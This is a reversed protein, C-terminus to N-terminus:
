IINKIKELINNIDFSGIANSQNENNFIDYIDESIISSNDIIKNATIHIIKSYEDFLIEIHEIIIKNINKLILEMSDNMKNDKDNYDVYNNEVILMGNMILRKLIKRAKSYDDEAGCTIDNIFKKESIRGGYLIMVEILLQKITTKVLLDDDDQPFLTYGLSKSNISICIKTPIISDKILFALIAHGTEHYAIIKRNLENIKRDREMGLICKSIEKDIDDTTINININNYLQNTEEQIIEEQNTEEQIIEEQNTEEQIIEEQIIKEQIIEKKNDILKLKNDILKLKDNNLEIFINIKNIKILNIIKKIDSGTLGYSLKSIKNINIQEENYLKGLYMKFLEIREEFTPYNIYIIQDVRGARILGKDIYDIDMNSAFIVIVGSETKLSDMEALFKCITSNYDTSASSSEVYSRKKLISDAEDVFILCPKNERAKKFLKGVTSSGSGVFMKNFDSGSIFIYNMGSSNIITKVLHTKGVGPPGIFLLGKPLECNNLKYIQEYNIQNILKNIDKKINNCGIFNDITISADKDKKVEIQSNSGLINDLFSNSDLTNKDNNDNNTINNYVENIKASVGKYLYYIINYFFMFTLYILFIVIYVYNNSNTTNIYKIEKTDTTSINLYNKSFDINQSCSYYNLFLNHNTEICYNHEDFVHIQKNNINKVWENNNTYTFVNKNFFYNYIYYSFILFYFINYIKVM